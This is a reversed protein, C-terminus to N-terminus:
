MCRTSFALQLTRRIRVPAIHTGNGVRLSVQSHGLTDIVVRPLLGSGAAPHHMPGAREWDHHFLCAVGPADIPAAAPHSEDPVLRWAM